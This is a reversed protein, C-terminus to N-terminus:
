EWMEAYEDSDANQLLNMMFTKKQRADSFNSANITGMM